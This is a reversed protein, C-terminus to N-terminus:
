EQADEGKFYDIVKNMGIRMSVNEEAFLRIESIINTESRESYLKDHFEIVKSFDVPTDVSDFQLCFDVQKGVLIDEEGSYIFPIGRALYERVKLSSGLLQRNLRHMGMCGVALTCRDFLADLESLDLPGYFTVREALALSSVLHKLRPIQSGDGALHINIRRKGGSGYYDALGQILLDCAHWVEFSAVFAINIDEGPVYSPNRVRISSLDIGNVIPITPIGFIEDHRSLDAIRNVYNKWYKRYKKEKLYAFFLEPVAKLEQDYPYSPLEIVVKADPNESRFTRLMSVFERSAFM